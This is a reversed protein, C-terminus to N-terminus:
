DSYATVKVEVMGIATDTGDSITYTFTFTGVDSNTYTIVGNAHTATGGSVDNISVISLPDGDPDTADSIADMTVPQGVKTEVSYNKAVPANNIPNGDLTPVFDVGEVDTLGMSSTDYYEHNNGDELTLMALSEDNDDFGILRNNAFDWGLAEFKVSSGLGGKQNDDIVELIRGNSPSVKYTHDDYNQTVYLSGDPAHEIDELRHSQEGSGTITGMFSIVSGNTKDIMYLEDAIADHDSDYNKLGAVLMGVYPKNPDQPDPPIISLGTINDKYSDFNIGIEGIVEVVNNATTSANKINFKLLTAANSSGVINRDLAIYMDGNEDLTMAEMDSGITRIRGNDNWKLRGYDVMTSSDTYDEMVFLQGDDEDIGWLKPIVENEESAITPKLTLTATALVAILSYISFKVIKNTKPM